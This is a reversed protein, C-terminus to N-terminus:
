FDRQSGVKTAASPDHLVVFDGVPMKRDGHRMKLDGFSVQVGPFGAKKAERVADKLYDDLNLADYISGEYYDDIHEQASDYGQDKAWAELEAKADKQYLPQDVQFEHIVPGYTGAHQKNTTLYYEDAHKTGEVWRNGMPGSGVKSPDFAEFDDLSGHFVRLPERVPQRPAAPAMTLANPYQARADGGVGAIPLARTLDESYALRGAPHSQVLANDSGARPDVIQLANKPM